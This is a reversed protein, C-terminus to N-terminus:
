LGFNLVSTSFQFRVVSRPSRPKRSPRALPIQKSAACLFQTHRLHTAFNAAGSFPQDRAAATAM